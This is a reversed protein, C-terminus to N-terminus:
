PSQEPHDKRYKRLRDEELLRGSEDLDQQHRALTEQDEQLVVLSCLMERLNDWDVNLASVTLYDTGITLYALVVRHPTDWSIIEVEVDVGNVRITAQQRPTNEIREVNWDRHFNELFPDNERLERPGYNGILGRILPLEMYAAGVNRSILGQSYQETPRQDIQVAKDPHSPHGAVYGLSIHDINTELGSTGWRPVRLKLGIPRDKLAYVPFPAAAVLRALVVRQNGDMFRDHARMSDALRPDQRRHKLKSLFRAVPNSSPHTATM